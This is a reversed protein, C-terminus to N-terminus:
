YHEWAITWHEDPRSSKLILQGDSFRYVRTLDKGILTRVLAGEVHHTVTQAQENVEYTGYYAEYGGQEYRVPGAAQTDEQKPLMIQVSMHGDRTYVITGRRDVARNPRGDAGQEETWALRWAGILKEKVPIAGPDTNNASQAHALEAFTLAMMIGLVGCLRTKM